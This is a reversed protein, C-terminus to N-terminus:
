PLTVAGPCFSLGLNKGAYASSVSYTTGVDARLKCLDENSLGLRARLADEAARRAEGLPEKNLTVIFGSDQPFYVIQFSSDAAGAVQFGNTESAAEPQETTSFDPITVTSGDTLTIAVTGSAVPESVLSGFPNVGTSGAPESVVQRQLFFYAGVLIGVSLILLIVGAAITITQKMPM